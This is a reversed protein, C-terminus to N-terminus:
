RKNYVSQSNNQNNYAGKRVRFRIQALQSHNLEDNNGKRDDKHFAFLRTANGIIRYLYTLTFYTSLHNTYGAKLHQKLSELTIWVHTKDSKCSTEAKFFSSDNSTLANLIVPLIYLSSIRGKIM